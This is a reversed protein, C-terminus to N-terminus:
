GPSGGPALINRGGPEPNRRELPLGLGVLHSTLLNQEAPYGVLRQKNTPRKKM